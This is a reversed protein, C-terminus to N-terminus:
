SKGGSSKAFVERQDVIKQPMVGDSDGGNAWASLPLGKLVGFNFYESFAAHANGKIGNLLRWDAARRFMAFDEKKIRCVGVAVDYALAKQAHMGNTMITSHDTAHTDITETLTERIKNTRWATYRDGATEPHDEETVQGDNEYLGERKAEMRLMAHHEYLLAAETEADGEPADSGKRKAEATAHKPM